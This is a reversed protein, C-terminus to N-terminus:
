AVLRPQDQWFADYAQNLVSTRLPLLADLGGPTWRMGSRKLRTAVVTKCAAEAIGSGVHMGQARFTPYRMREANTTFYGVAQEPISKSQGPPPVIPPLAAIAAVLAEINGHVLLDCADKAWLEAAETQPGYVARGVQWVHEQAHYLDVIQVAEPFHEGALKWIWLAGDGLIVVQKAQSLGSQCALGYLLQDFDGKATRRAVYRQSGEKPTDIWVEPALESRERGREAEFITGVKLERYVDGKRKKESDEMEVTGRRLREMIGDMEIYLREICKFALLEQQEQVSTHKHTAQEFLEKLVTEEQEALAKGVPEMLNQAQKATMKLPLFRSFTEAAEEFTLRACLYGIAEQVGPTTRRQDIGWIQDAPARGPCHQKQEEEEGEQEKGKHCHYYARKFEVKGMMTLIQKIRYDVIHQKHGCEGVQNGPAKEGSQNIRCQFLNRGLELVGKYIKQELERLNGDEIGEVEEVLRVLTREVEQYRERQAQENTEM